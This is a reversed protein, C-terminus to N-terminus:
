TQGHQGASTTKRSPWRGSCSNSWAGALRAPTVPPDRRATQKALGSDRRRVSDTQRALSRLAADVAQVEDALPLELGLRTRLKAVKDRITGVELHHRHGHRRHGGLHRDLVGAGPRDVLYGGHDPRGGSASPGPLAVPDLQAAAPVHGRVPGGSVVPDPFTAMVKIFLGGIILIIVILLGFSVIRSTQSPEM